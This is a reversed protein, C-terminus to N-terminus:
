YVSIFLLADLDMLERQVDNNFTSSMFTHPNIPLETVCHCVGTNRVLTTSRSLLYLVFAHGYSPQRQPHSPNRFELICLKGAAACALVKCFHALILDLNRRRSWERWERRQAFSTDLSQLRTLIQCAELIAVYRSSSCSCDIKEQGM